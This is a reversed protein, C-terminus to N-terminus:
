HSKELFGQNQQPLMPFRRKASARSKHQLSNLWRNHIALISIARWVASLKKYIHIISWMSVDSYIVFDRNFFLHRLHFILNKNAKAQIGQLKSCHHFALHVAGFSALAYAPQAVACNRKSVGCSAAPLKMASVVELITDWLYTQFTKTPNSFMKSAGAVM